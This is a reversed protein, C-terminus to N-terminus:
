TSVNSSADGRNDSTVSKKTDQQRLHEVEKMSKRIMEVAENNKAVIARDLPMRNQLDLESLHSPAHKVTYYLLFKLIKINKVQGEAAKHLATQGDIMANPDAKHNMLSRLEKSNLTNLESYLYKSFDDKSYGYKNKVKRCMKKDIRKRQQENTDKPRAVKNSKAKSLAPKEVKPDKPIELKKVSHLPRSNRHSQQPVIPPYYITNPRYYVTNRPYGGQLGEHFHRYAVEYVPRISPYFAHYPLPIYQNPFRTYHCPSPIHSYPRANLYGGTGFRGYDGPNFSQRQNQGYYPMERKHQTPFTM